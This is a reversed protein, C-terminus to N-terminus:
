KIRDLLSYFQSKLLSYTFVEGSYVVLAIDHSKQNQESGPLVRKEYLRFLEKMRRRVLNREVANGYHKAPIVIFRDFGLNNELAVLRM